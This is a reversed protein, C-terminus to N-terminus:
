NRDSRSPPAALPLFSRIPRALWKFGHREGSSIALPANPMAFLQGDAGQFSSKAASRSRLTAQRRIPPSLAREREGKAHPAWEMWSAM